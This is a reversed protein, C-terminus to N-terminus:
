QSLEPYNSIGSTDHQRVKIKFSECIISITQKLFRHLNQIIEGSEVRSHIGTLDKRAEKLLEGLVERVNVMGIPKSHHPITITENRSISEWIQKSYMALGGIPVSSQYSPILSNIFSLFESGNNTLENFQLHLPPFGFCSIEFCETYPVYNLDSVEQWLMHMDEILDQNLITLYIDSATHDRFVFIIWKKTFSSRNTLYTRACSDRLFRLLSLYSANHRGVDSHHLNVIVINSLILSFLAFLRELMLNVVCETDMILVNQVKPATSIWLGQTTQKPGRNSYLFPFSTGFVENLLTSKGSSQAGLVSVISYHPFQSSHSSCFIELANHDFGDPGFIQVVSSMPEPRYSGNLENTNTFNNVGSFCPNILPNYTAHEDTQFALRTKEFAESVLSWDLLEECQPCTVLEDM